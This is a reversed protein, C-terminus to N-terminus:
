FDFICFHVQM